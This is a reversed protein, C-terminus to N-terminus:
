GSIDALDIIAWHTGAAVALLDDRWTLPGSCALALTLLCEGTDCSWIRATGDGSATAVYRDDSRLAIGWVQATHGELEHILKGSQIDWIRGNRDESATVLWRDDSSFGLDWVSGGHDGFAALEEGTAANWIRAKGDEAGTALWAGDSNFAVEWVRGAHRVPSVSEQGTASDWIRATQDESATALKAGDHSFAIDFIKKTHGTLTRLTKGTVADWIRADHDASATAVLAEDRCWDVGWVAATHGAFTTLSQGTAIDWIQATADGGATLVRSGEANFVLDHVEGATRAARELPQDADVDWVRATGDGAATALRRGDASFAVGHVPNTHGALTLLPQGSRPDWLRATGDESATALRQGDPSFAVDWVANCHGTLTKLVTRTAIDWIRVTGDESGTIVESGDPSFTVAKVPWPPGAPVFAVSQGTEIDRVHAVGDDGAIALQRSDASFAVDWLQGTGADITDVTTATAVDWIRATGDDGWTALRRDDASFYAGWVEGTHGVLIDIPRGTAAEWLRATGDAGATALVRNDHSLRLGWVRAKHGALTFLAQGTRIDWIRATHDESSSMLRRGDRSFAVGWCESTHGRLTQLLQPSPVPLSGSRVRQRRQGALGTADAWCQLSVLLGTRVDAADFLGGHRLVRRLRSLPATDAVATKDCVLGVDQEAATAGQRRIRHALWDLDSVLAQLAASNLGARCAHWVLRDWLYPSEQAFVDCGHERKEGALEWLRLHVDALPNDSQLVLFDHVHDHLVVERATRLVIDKDSLGTIVHDADDRSVDWLDALLDIPISTDAPFAGLALARDRDDPNLTALAVYLAKHASSANDGQGFREALGDLRSLVPAWSGEVSATAGLVALALRLGGAAELVADLEDHETPVGSPLRQLFAAAEASGLRVLHIIATNDPLSEAFRTTFLARTPSDSRAIDFARAQWPHWVDDIVLLTKRLRLVDALLEKGNTIDRPPHAAAAGVRTLLDAQMRRVDESSAREGITVWHVGDPFWEATRYAAEAALVSKGTGGEGQLGVVGTVSDPALLACLEQLEAPEVYHSPREPVGELPDGPPVSTAEQPGPSPLDLPAATANSLPPPLSAPNAGALRLSRLHEGIEDSLRTLVKDRSAPACDILVETKPNNVFTLERIPDDAALHDYVLPFIRFEPDKQQRAQIAPWEIGQIYTSAGWETCVLVIAGAARQMAARIAPTFKEGVDLNTTDRWIELEGRLRRGALKVDIKDALAVQTKVRSYCVFYLPPAAVLEAPANMPCVWALGM